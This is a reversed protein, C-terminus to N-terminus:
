VLFSIDTGSAAVSLQASGGSGLTISKPQTVIGPPVDITVEISDSVTIGASNSIVVTYVGASATTTLSEIFNNNWGSDGCWRKEMSLKNSKCWFYKGMVFSAGEQVSIDKVINM